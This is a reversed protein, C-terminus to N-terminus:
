GRIVHDVPLDYADRPLEEGYCCAFVLGVTTVPIRADRLAALFRDYYGGGYGLRYGDRDFALGPVLIVAGAFDAPNLIPCSDDPERVGFRASVLREPAYEAVRRFIMRGERAGTVTVPLAFSKGADIAASWLPLTDIEGRMSVYGCVLPAEQWAPLAYLQRRITAEAATRPTGQLGDRLATYHARLDKKHTTPTM